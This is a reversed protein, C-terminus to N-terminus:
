RTEAYHQPNRAIVGHLDQARQMAKKAEALVLAARKLSQPVRADRTAKIARRLRQVASGEKPDSTTIGSWHPAHRSEVYRVLGDDSSAIAREYLNLVESPKASRLERDFRAVRLEELNNVQLEAV